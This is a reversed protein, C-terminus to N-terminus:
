NIPQPEFAQNDVYWAITSTLGKELPVPRWHPLMARLRGIDLMKSKAGVFVYADYEISNPDFKLYSSIIAAFQRITYEEGAGINVVENGTAKDLGILGNVFDDVFVLERQQYGDGWLVVKKKKTVGLHIKRILDYVFHLQRGDLPYDPGYVTSPVIYLYQHGFQRSLSQLGILLARKTTAYAIYRDNPTGELYNAERLDFGKAYSVSTGFAVLKAQAQHEHWYSLVETNIQQNVIWQEGRRVDCFDGAQTWAALHYIRDFKHGGAAKLLAGSRRLDAERSSFTLVEHGDSKLRRVLHRGVFGTAGTVLIKM